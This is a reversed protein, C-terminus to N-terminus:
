AAPIIVSRIANKINKHLAIKTLSWQVGYLRDILLYPNNATTLKSVLQCSSPSVLAM